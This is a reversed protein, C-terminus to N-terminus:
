QAEQSQMMDTFAVIFDAPLHCRQALALFEQVLAVPDSAASVVLALARLYDDYNGTAQFKYLALFIGDAAFAVKSNTSSAAARQAAVYGNENLIADGFEEWNPPEIVPPKEVIEWGHTITGNVQGSPDTIEVVAPLPRAFHTTSNYNTPEPENVISLVHYTNRDLGVVDFDDNRPWPQLLETNRNYLIRPM